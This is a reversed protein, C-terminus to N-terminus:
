RSFRVRIDLGAAAIMALSILSHSPVGFGLVLREFQGALVLFVIMLALSFALVFAQKSRQYDQSVGLWRIEVNSPLLPAVRAELASLADGLAVGAALSAKLRVAPLRDARKLEAGRGVIETEILGRLAVLSHDEARVEVADINEPASRDAARARVMVAYSEGDISFNTVDEGGMLIQLTRGIDSIQVRLAATRDRDIRIRLQPNTPQYDHRASELAAPAFAMAMPEFAGHGRRPVVRLVVQVNANIM